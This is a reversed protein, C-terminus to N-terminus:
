GQNKSGLFRFAMSCFLKAGIDLVDEDVDFNPSHLPYVIGKAKNGTGIRFLAGPIAQAFYAFDEAGMRPYPMYHVNTEGLLETASEKILKDVAADNIVSPTGYEYEFEYDAGVSMTM